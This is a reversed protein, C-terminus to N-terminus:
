PSNRCRCEVGLLLGCYVQIAPPIEGRRRGSRGVTTPPTARFLRPKNVNLRSYHNTGATTGSTSILSPKHRGGSSPAASFVNRNKGRRGLAAKPPLSEAAVYHKLSSFLAKGPAILASLTRVVGALVLRPFGPRCDLCPVPHPGAEPESPTTPLLGASPSARKEQWPHHQSSPPIRSAV